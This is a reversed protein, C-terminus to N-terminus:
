RNVGGLSARPPFINLASLTLHHQGLSPPPTLPTPLIHLFIPIVKQSFQSLHIKIYLLWTWIQVGRMSTWLINNEGEQQLNYFALLLVFFLPDQYSSKTVVIYSALDQFPPLFTHVTIDPQPSREAVLLWQTQHLVNMRYSPHPFKRGLLYHVSKLLRYWLGCHLSISVWERNRFYIVISTKYVDM